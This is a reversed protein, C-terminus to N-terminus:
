FSQEQPMSSDDNLAKTLNWLKQTKRWTSHALRKKGHSAPKRSRKKGHSAPKRSRKKGHSAPKRSRKKTLFPGQMTTSSPTIHHLSSSRATKLKDHQSHIQYLLILCSKIRSLHRHHKIYNNYIQYLFIFLLKNKVVVASEQSEQHLKNQRVSLYLCSKITLLHRHNM